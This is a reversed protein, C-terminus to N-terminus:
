AGEEIEVVGESRGVRFVIFEAPAAIAVGVDCNLKGEAISEATNNSDDCKVFFSTEVRDGALAGAQFVKLLYGVIRQSLALRLLPLNPEFVVAQGLRECTREVASLCRRVNVFVFERDSDDLSTPDTWQLTRAGWLQVGIGPFSRIVNVGADYLAANARDDVPTQLGVVGVMTENAPPSHPGYALDRRAFIGAVFGVPSRLAISAGPILQVELWPWYIASSQFVGLNQRYTIVQQQTLGPPPAVIGFVRWPDRELRNLFVLQADQVETADFLPQEEMLSPPLQTVPIGSTTARSACPFFSGEEAVPPLTSTRSKEVAVTADLEPLVAIAVEDQRLLLELGTPLPNGNADLPSGARPLGLMDNLFISKGNLDGPAPIAAAINVVWCRSGGNMFFARVADALRSGPPPDILNGRDDRLFAEVFSRWDELATAQYLGRTGAVGVFGVVDTRVRPFAALRQAPVRYVGPVSYSSVGM